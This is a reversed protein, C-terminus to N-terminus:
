GRSIATVGALILGMGAAKLVSVKERFVLVAGASVLVFTLGVLMPYTSSIPDRALVRFWVLASMGYLFLGAWFTASRLLPGWTSAAFVAGTMSNASLVSHRLLLNAAATLVAAICILTIGSTSIAGSSTM